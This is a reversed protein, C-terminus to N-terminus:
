GILAEAKSIADAMQLTTEASSHSNLPTVCYPNKYVFSISMHESLLSTYYMQWNRWFDPM